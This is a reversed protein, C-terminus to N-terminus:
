QPARGPSVPLDPRAAVAGPRVLRPRKLLGEWLGLTLHGLFAAKRRANRGQAIIGTVFGAAARERGHRSAPGRRLLIWLRNRVDYRLRPGLDSWEAKLPHTVVSTTSALGGALDQLRSTYESDDWWIFFDAIPLFTTRAVDLNILAGVFTCHAAPYTDPPTSVGANEEHSIRLPIHSPIPEGGPTLVASAVFGPANPTAAEAATVLPALADTRPRADDDMLWAYRHGRRILLDIGLSFGGAGGVNQTNRVLTVAPFHRRVMEVSDDTSNNDVVLIEDLPHTQATLATLCERLLRSRDHSVVLAAVTM